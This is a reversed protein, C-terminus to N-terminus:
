PLALLRALWEERERRAEGSGLEFHGTDYERAEGGPFASALFLEADLRSIYPDRRAFQLLVPARGNMFHTGDLREVRSLWAQQAAPTAFGRLAAGLMGQGDRAARSYAAWGAMLVFGRARPELGALRAGATAGLSWGVYALRGPDVDPRALLLDFSRRLDVVTQRIDREEVDPDFPPPLPGERNEPAELLVCVVGRGALAAAEDLFTSRDGRGHHLFVLGARREGPRAPAAPEVVYAPARGGLPSAFSVDRVTAAGRAELKEERTDLPARPDYAFLARVDAAAPTGAGSALFRLATGAPDLFEEVLAVFRDPRELHVLHGARPVVIREAGAVGAEIAGVHAHVDAIDSEGVLLRLPVKVEGLRLRSDPDPRSSPAGGTLSQPFRELLARLRARAEVNRADTIYPDDAWLAVSAAADKSRRLPARNRLGREFFHQSYPFGSLVPGELVLARVREPHALTFDLALGGGASCGVLAVRELRLADLVALLDDASSYDRTTSTSAGYGRRDWRVVDFRELLPRWVEDWSAGPLLGDHILVVPSGAGGREWALRGGPVDVFGSEAGARVAAALFLALLVARPGTM